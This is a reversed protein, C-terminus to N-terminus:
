GREEMIKEAANCIEDVTFCAGDYKLIRGPVDLGLERKLLRCFQGTANNEIGILRKGDLNYGSIMAATLPYVQRFHLAAATKGKAALRERAEKVIMKNSGWCILFTDADAPGFLTPIL